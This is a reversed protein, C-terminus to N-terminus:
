LFFFIKEENKKVKKLGKKPRKEVKGIVGWVILTIPATAVINIIHKIQNLKKFM